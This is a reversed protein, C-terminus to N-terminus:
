DLNIWSGHFGFPVRQPLTIRALPAESFNQADLVVFDSLDTTKDYVFGVVFGDDESKANKKPIFVPEAAQCNEGFDHTITESKEFDHKFYNNLRGDNLLYGFRHQKGDYDPHVRSFEMPRDDLMEESCTKAKPDLIWRTLFPKQGMPLPNDFDFLREYRCFDLVVQGNENEYSNVIHFLFGPNVEIWIIEDTKKSQLGVRSIHKDNWVVPYDGGIPNNDGDRRGLNFTVPLDFILVYNKTIACDHVMPRSPTEIIKDKILKGHSDVTVYHVQGLGNVYEGFDYSVAHMEGTDADIKPHATFRKNESAPFPEEELFNMESDMIVPSIGGEVLAYIKEGHKLVHTNPGFGFPSTVFKNKYWLAKGDEVRIGHIMGDGFFPHYNEHNIPEKPNPGNRLFLGSLEKPLEGTIKLETTSTEEVPYWNGSLFKNKSERKTM